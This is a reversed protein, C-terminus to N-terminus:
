FQFEEEPPDPEADLELLRELQEVEPQPEPPLRNSQKLSLTPLEDLAQTGAENAMRVLINVLYSLVTGPQNELPLVEAKMRRGHGTLMCSLERDLLFPSIVGIPFTHLFGHVPIQCEGEDIEGRMLVGPGRFPRHFRGVLQTIKVLVIM